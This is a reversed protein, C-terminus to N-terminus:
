VRLRMRQSQQKRQAVALWVQWIVTFAVVSWSLAVLPLYGRPQYRFDVLNDGSVVPVARFIFNGGLVRQPRGNVQASWAGAWRDTILLWGDRDAHYRFTLASPLYTVLDATAPVM